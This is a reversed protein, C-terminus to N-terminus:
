SLNVEVFLEVYMIIVVFFLLAMEFEDEINKMNEHNEECAM